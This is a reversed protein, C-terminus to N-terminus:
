FSKLKNIESTITKNIIIMDDLLKTYYKTEENTLTKHTLELNSINKAFSKIQKLTDALENNNINVSNLKNITDTLIFIIKHLVKVLSFNNMKKIIDNATDHYANTQLSIVLITVLVLAITPDKLAIYAIFIIFFLKIITNDFFRILSRPFKPACLSAYLVLILCIVTRLLKNDNINEM